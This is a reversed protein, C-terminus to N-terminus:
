FNSSSDVLFNGNNAVPLYPMSCAGAVTPTFANCRPYFVLGVSVFFADDRAAAPGMSASPKMYQLDGTIAWRDSLPAVVSGGVTWAGLSGAGNIREQEVAGMWLYSDTGQAFKHHWFFNAMEVARYSVTGIGLLGPQSDGRDRLTGWVGFENCASTAYAIQGRWQTLYPEHSFVGWNDNVMMDYVIGTSWNSDENARRFVGTTMFLQEQTEDLEVISSQRGDWDYMGYSGGAQFGWGRDGIKRGWNFGTRMGNNNQFSGDSTGRFSEFNSFIISSSEPCEECAACFDECSNCTDCANGCGGDCGVDGSNVIANTESINFIRGQNSLSEAQASGALLTSLSVALAKWLNIRM